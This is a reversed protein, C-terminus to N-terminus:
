EKEEKDDRIYEYEDCMAMEEEEIEQYHRVWYDSDYITESDFM